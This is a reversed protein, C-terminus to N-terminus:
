KDFLALRVLVHDAEFLSSLHTELWSAAAGLSRAVRDAGFQSSLRALDGAALRSGVQGRGSDRSQFRRPLVFVLGWRGDLRSRSKRGM